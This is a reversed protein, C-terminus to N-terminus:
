ALLPLISASIKISIHKAVLKKNDFNKSKIFIGDTSPGTIMPIM